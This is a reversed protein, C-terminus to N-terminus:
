ECAFETTFSTVQNKSDTHVILSGEQKKRNFQYTHAIIQGPNNLARQVDALTFALDKANPIVTTINGKINLPRNDDSFTVEINPEGDRPWMYTTTKANEDYKYKVNNIFTDIPMGNAILSECSKHMMEPTLPAKPSQNTPEDSATTTDPASPPQTTDAPPTYGPIVVEQAQPHTTNMDDAYSEFSVMLLLLCVLGRGIKLM